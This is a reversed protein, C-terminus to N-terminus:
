PIPGLAENDIKDAKFIQTDAISYVPKELVAARRFLNVKIEDYTIQSDGFISQSTQNLEEIAEIANQKSLTLLLFYGGGFLAAILAIIILPKKLLVNGSILYSTSTPM